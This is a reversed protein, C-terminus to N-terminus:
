LSYAELPSVIMPILTMGVYGGYPPPILISCVQLLFMGAIMLGIVLASEFYEEVEL